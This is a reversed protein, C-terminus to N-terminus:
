VAMQVDTKNSDQSSTPAPLANQARGSPVEADRSEEDSPELPNTGYLVTGDDYEEPENDIDTSNLGAVATEEEDSEEDSDDPMEMPNTGYDVTGDDYDEDEEDHTSNVTSNATVAVQHDSGYDADDEDEEDDSQNELPNTGYLVTGDDIEEGTEWEDKEWDETESEDRSDTGAHLVVQNESQAADDEQEDAPEEDDNLEDTGTHHPEEGDDLDDQEWIFGSAELPNTGYLVTGDDHAKEYAWMDSSNNPDTWEDPIEDEEQEYSEPDDNEDEELSQLTRNELPNFGTLMTGDDNEKEYLWPDSSNTAENTGVYEAVAGSSSEKQLTKAAWFEKIEEAKKEDVKDQNKPHKDHGGRTRLFSQSAAEKLQTAMSGVEPRAPIGSEGEIGLGLIGNPQLLYLALVASVKNLQM